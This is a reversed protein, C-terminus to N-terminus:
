ENRLNDSINSRSAKLIHVGITCAAIVLLVAASITFLWVNLSIRYVFSQLWADAAWWGLPLAILVALAVLRIFDKGLLIGLDGLDAGLIKRISIEKTRRGILFATLAFLGVIALAIATFGFFTVIRQLRIHSAFLQQFNEDLFSYRIGLGPEIDKWLKEIGAVTKHSDSGSIKILIAGGSQFYCAENGITFVTPQIEQEFGSVNFNKVIGVVEIPISDCGLYSIYMGGNAHQLGLKHAAAENIIASRTHQDGHNNNFLRGDVLDIHLTKFYDQSVKVSGMRYSEGKHKFDTTSTDSLVDGPVKTTKAVSQVGPIRLLENKVQDFNEERTKMMFAQVRLVQESSFGKDSHQMYTLQRNVVVISIIFFAAVVFQVVILGNRLALGQKGTSYDGKLVKTTNYRSLFIAPYLGSLLTVVLLCGIVQAILTWSSGLGFLSLSVHFERNFHPIAISLILISLLLAIICQLAIEIMFQWFLNGRSSGLVKKIGVEKARRLSSAISLNSFNIAGTFLLLIALILLISITSIQSSGYKPFNHIDHVADVFLSERNTSKIYEPYTKGKEKQLRERYYIQDIASELENGALVNKTKVYTHFSWNGWHYNDNEFPSRHVIEIALHTPGKPNEMVATVELEFSNFVKITKGIPNEKGFFKSAMAESIVMANPKQLPNLADGAVIKYPFVNFFLSDASIMGSQSFTKEGVSLPAEFTADPSIKTSAEIQAGKERLLNALPAQTNPSIDSEAKRLSVKYVKELEPDWRDYNLEYNLYLLIILFSTLGVTLGLINIASYGKIKWLNRFTLKLYNKIM